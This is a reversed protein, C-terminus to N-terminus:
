IVRIIASLCLLLGSVLHQCSTQLVRRSLSCIAAQFRLAQAQEPHQMGRMAHSCREGNIAPLSPQSTVKTSAGQRQLSWVPSRCSM